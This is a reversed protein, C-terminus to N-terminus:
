PYDIRGIEYVFAMGEVQMMKGDPYISSVHPAAIVIRQQGVSRMSVSEGNAGGPDFKFIAKKSRFRATSKEFLTGHRPLLFVTISEDKALTDCNTYVTEFDRGLM